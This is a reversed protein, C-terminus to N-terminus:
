QSQMLAATAALAASPTAIPWCARSTPDSADCAMWRVDTAAAGRPGSASAVILYVVVIFLAVAVTAIGIIIFPELAEARAPTALIVLLAALLAASTLRFWPSHITM